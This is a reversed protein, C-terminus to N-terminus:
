LDFIKKPKRVRKGEVIRKKDIDEAKESKEIKRETTLSKRSKVETKGQRVVTPKKVTQGTVQIVDMYHSNISSKDDGDDGVLVLNPPNVEKVKYVKLSYKPTAGKEFVNKMIRVRVRTGIPFQKKIKETLKEDKTKDTKFRKQTITLDSPETKDTSFASSGKVKSEDNFSQKPSIGLTRHKKNNYTNVIKPFDDIWRYSGTLTIYREILERFTRNVREVIGQHRKNTTFYTKINKSALLDKVKNNIFESGKDAQIFNVDYNKLFDSFVDYSSKLSKIPYAVVFRSIIEIFIIIAQYGDNEKAYNQFFMTDVQWGGPGATIPIWEKIPIKKKNAFIEKVEKNKSTSKFLNDFIEM